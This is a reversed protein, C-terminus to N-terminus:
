SGGTNYCVDQGGPQMINWQMSLCWMEMDTRPTVPLSFFRRPLCTYAPPQRSCGLACMGKSAGKFGAKDRDNLHCIGAELPSLLDGQGGPFAALNTLGTHQRCPGTQAWMSSGWGLLPHQSLNPELFHNGVQAVPPSSATNEKERPKSRLYKLSLFM